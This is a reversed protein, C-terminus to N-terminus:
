ELFDMDVTAGDSVHSLPWHVRARSINPSLGHVTGDAFLHHCIGGPHYSGYSSVLTTCAGSSSGNTFTDWLNPNNARGEGFGIGENAERAIVFADNMSQRAPSYLLTDNEKWSANAHPVDPDSRVIHVGCDWINWLNGSAGPDGSNSVLSCKGLKDAPIHKEAFLFQNSTGDVLRSFDDRPVWKPTQVRGDVIRLPTLNIAARFAGFLSMQGEEHDYVRTFGSSAGDVSMVAVYDSVFGDTGRAFEPAPPTNGGGGGGGGAAAAHGDTPSMNATILPLDPHNSIRPGRSPCIYTSILLAEKDPLADWWQNNAPNNAYDEPILDYITQKELYPLLFVFITPATGYNVTGGNNNILVLPPLGDKTSHFNHVAIGIQKMHNACQIRRAAERAAQVAPLLLAILVGIIAIVVLLEVLTFGCISSHTHRFFTKSLLNSSFREDRKRRLGGGTKDMKVNPNIGFRKRFVRCFM